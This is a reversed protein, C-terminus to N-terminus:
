TRTSRHGAEALAAEFISPKLPYSQGKPLKATESKMPEYHARGAIGVDALGIALGFAAMGCLAIESMRAPAPPRWFRVPQLCVLLRRQSRECSSDRRERLHKAIDHLKTGIYFLMAIVISGWVIFVMPPINNVRSGTVQITRGASPRPMITSGLSSMQFTVMTLREPVHRM